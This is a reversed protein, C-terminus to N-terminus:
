GLPEGTAHAIINVERAEQPKPAASQERDVTDIAARHSARLLAQSITLSTLNM